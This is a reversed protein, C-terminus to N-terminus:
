FPLAKYYYLQLAVTHSQDQRQLNYTSRLTLEPTIRFGAGFSYNDTRAGKIEYLQGQLSLEARDEPLPMWTLRVLSAYAPEEHFSGYLAESRLEWAMIRRSYDIGVLRLQHPVKNHMINYGMTKFVNGAALSVGLSHNSRDFNGLGVRAAFLWSEDQYLAMGSGTTLSVEFEPIGRDMSLGIGWDRDLVLGTMTNDMLLGAHNDWTKSIGLAPKNHGAWLDLPKTKLKIYANYLQAELNSEKSEDYALRAQLAILGWDKGDSGFRQILDFGLSPKQMAEHPHMTYPRIDGSISEWSGALQAEAFIIRSQAGLVSTGGMLILLCVLGPLLHRGSSSRAPSILRTRM